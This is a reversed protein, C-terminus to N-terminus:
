TRLELRVLVGHLQREEGLIALDVRPSRVAASCADAPGHTDILITPDEDRRPTVVRAIWEGGREDLEAAPRDDREIATRTMGGEHVASRRRVRREAGVLGADKVRDSARHRREREAVAGLRLADHGHSLIGRAQADRTTTM